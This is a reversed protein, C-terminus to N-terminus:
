RVPEVGVDVASRYAWTRWEICCWVDDDREIRVAAHLDFGEHKASFRRDRQEFARDDDDSFTPPAITGDNKLALFGGPTAATTACADLADDPTADDVSEADRLHGRARLWRVMRRQVTRVIRQLGDRTPAPADYFEIRDDEDRTFVGDLVMLHFHVNLNLSGGFRQIFTVAGGRADDKSTFGTRTRQAALVTDAFIRVLGRLVRADFAALKRIAYPLSLVWQRVPVNPLVRDVLHAAENCMRRGACSPCLGRGKCSFAVLLDHGCDDCHARLFGYAPIGCRLYSRFTDVVYKPLPKAYRERAHEVFTELSDRVLAYLV